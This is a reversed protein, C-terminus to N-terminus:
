YVKFYREEEWRTVQAAYETWEERKARSIFEAIHPGVTDMMLKDAEFAKVSEYMNAPLSGINRKQMEYASMEYVNEGIPDPPKLNREIGDLGAALMCAFSLYPNCAPDPNRLEIRTSKGRGAPIRILPSRNCESWAIRVPAEYGPVLRKYSNITPNTLIAMSRVHEVLGAVYQRCTDSLGMPASKDEFANEGDRFLSQNTHMGSGNVGFMPKPMFTAYLGHDLAITKVVLRFTLIRDATTLADAYKFDIEHQSPAVEHHAAEIEFGMAELAIIMDHRAEEGRDVPLLDFYGAADHTKIAPQGDPGKEFLFFEMEPGVMMEFGKKAAKELQMKLTTRVCGPFPRGDPRQIDCILRATVGRYPTIVEEHHEGNAHGPIYGAQIAPVYEPLTWPLIAFTDPDPKLRMDSENIRAFGEVSSGDFMIGEDFAKELQSIPIEVNKTIGPIDTFQLRIFRVPYVKIAENIKEPIVESM